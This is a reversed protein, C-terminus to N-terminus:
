LRISCEGRLLSHQEFAGFAHSIAHAVVRIVSQLTTGAEQRLVLAVDCNRSPSSRGCRVRADEGYTSFLPRVPCRGGAPAFGAITFSCYNEEDKKLPVRM